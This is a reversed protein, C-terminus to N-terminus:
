ESNVINILAQVEDRETNRGEPIQALLWELLEKNGAVKKEIREWAEGRRHDGPNLVVLWVRVLWEVSLDDKENDWEALIAITPGCERNMLEQVRKSVM